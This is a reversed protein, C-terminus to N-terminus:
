GRSVLLVRGRGAEPCGFIGGPIGPHLVLLSISEPVSICFLLVKFQISHEKKRMTCGMPLNWATNPSRLHKKEQQLSTTRTPAVWPLEKREREREASTGLGPISDVGCCGGSGHCHCHLIRLRSCWWPVRLPARRHGLLLTSPPWRGGQHVSELVM